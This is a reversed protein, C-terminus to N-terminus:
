NRPHKFYFVFGSKMVNQKGYTTAKVGTGWSLKSLIEVFRRNVVVSASRLSRTM